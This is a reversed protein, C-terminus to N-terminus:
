EKPYSEAWGILREWSTKMADLTQRVEECTFREECAHCEFEGTGDLDMSVLADPNWCKICIAKMTTEKTRTV